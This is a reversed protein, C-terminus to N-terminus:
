TQFGYTLIPVVCSELIKMKSPVSIESKFVQYLAWFGRWAKRKREKLEKDMRDNFSLMQGLYVYENVRELRVNNVYIEGTERNSL